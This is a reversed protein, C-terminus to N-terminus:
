YTTEEWGECAVAVMGVGGWRRLWVGMWAARGDDVSRFSEGGAEEWNEYVGCAWIWLYGYGM